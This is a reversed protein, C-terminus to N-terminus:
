TITVRTSPKSYCSIGLWCVLTEVAKKLEGLSGAMNRYNLLFEPFM